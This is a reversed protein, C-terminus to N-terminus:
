ERVSPPFNKSFIKENVNRIRKNKTNKLKFLNLMKKKIKISIYNIEINVLSL